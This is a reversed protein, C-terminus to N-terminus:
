KRRASIGGFTVASPNGSGINSKVTIEARLFDADSPVSVTTQASLWGDKKPFGQLARPLNEDKAGRDNFRATTLTKEDSTGSIRKVVLLIEGEFGELPLAKAIFEVQKTRTAAPTKAASGATKAANAPANAPAGPPANSSKDSVPVNPTELIMTTERISAHKENAAMDANTDVDRDGAGHPTAGTKARAVGRASVLPLMRRLTAHNTATLTQTAPDALVIRFPTPSLEGFYADPLALTPLINGDQAPRPRALPAREAPFAAPRPTEATTASSDTPQRGWGALWAACAGAALVAAGAAAAIAGIRWRRARQRLQLIEEISVGTEAAIGNGNAAATSAASAGAGAFNGAGAGAGSGNGAGAGGTGARREQEPSFDMEERAAALSASTDTKLLLPLDDASFGVAAAASKLAEFDYPIFVFEITAARRGGAGAGVEGDAGGGEGEDYVVYSARPDASRSVGVSGPNVMYRKGAELAFNQPEVRHARGSAGVVFLAAQHTHGTFLLQEGAAAFGAAADAEDFVYDFAGPDAFGGHACRFSPRGGGGGAFGGAGGGGSEGASGGAGGNAGGGAGAGGGGTISLPLQAFAGAARSSLRGATWEIIRRARDNFVDPSMMGAVVADHNGLLIVHARAWVSKLTEAPQPGYGVVDGLCIIRDIKRLSMDALATNWAPLNAHIDSVIAYRM